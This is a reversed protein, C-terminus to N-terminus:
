WNTITVSTTTLKDTEFTNAIHLITCINRVFRIKQKCQLLTIVYFNDLDMNVGKKIKIISTGSTLGAEIFKGIVITLLITQFQWYLNNKYINFCKKCHCFPM